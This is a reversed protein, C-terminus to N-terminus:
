LYNLLSLNKLHSTVAYAVNLQDSLKMLRASAEYPDVSEAEGIIAQLRTTSDAAIDNAEIIRQQVQGLRARHDNLAAVSQGTTAITHDILTDFAAPGLSPAGTDIIAILSLCFGTFASANASFSTEVMEGDQIRSTLVEDSAASFNASWAPQTGLVDFSANLYDDMQAATMSSVSASNQAFGFYSQFTADVAAKAASGSEYMALPAVDTNIGSFIYAGDSTTSLLSVLAGLRSKADEVLQARADPSQRAAVLSSQFDAALSGIASLAQQTQDLRSALRGNATQLQDLTSLISKQSLYDGTGYGLHDGLDAYLGSSAESSADVLKRQIGSVSREVSLWPSLSSIFGVRM